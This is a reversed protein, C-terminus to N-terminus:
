GRKEGRREDAKGKGGGGKKMGMRVTCWLPPQDENNPSNPGADGREFLLKVSAHGNASAHRLSTRDGDDPYNPDVNKRKLLLKM